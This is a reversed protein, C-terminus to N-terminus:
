SIRRQEQVVQNEGQRIITTNVGDSRVGVAERDAKRDTPVNPDSPNRRGPTSYKSGDRMEIEIAMAVVPKPPMGSVDKDMQEVGVVRFVVEPSLGVDRLISLFRQEEQSTPRLVYKPGNSKSEPIYEIRM